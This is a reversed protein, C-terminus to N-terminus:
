CLQLQLSCRPLYKKENQEASVISISTYIDCFQFLFLLSRLFCIWFTSIMTIKSKQLFEM